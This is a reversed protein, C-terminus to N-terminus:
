GGSPKGHNEASLLSKFSQWIDKKDSMKVKIFNDGKVDDYVKFMSSEWGSPTNPKIEGYGFLNCLETLKQAGAKAKENDDSWNDGDSCHFAYINWLSPHFRDNIIELAKDYGSSIYTGGSEGKHFFEHETVEKAATTHAIFVLETNRYKTKVFQYLLFYFSRALFKKVTNMSGSTDMICIVVANSEEKIRTDMRKYRLDEKRFPVRKSDTSSAASVDGMQINSGNSTAIKRKLREKVSRKKNLRARIGVRKYGKPKLNRESEIARFKKRELNPLELESFLIDTLEDLTIETEYFDEGPSNGAKDGLPSGDQDGKQVVDGPELEEDGQGVGPSNDGYVFRYEKVGRLPIKVIKDGAQGIISEESIIDVINERISERIKKRHRARDNASRDSRYDSPRVFYAM